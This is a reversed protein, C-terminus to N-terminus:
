GLGDLDVSRVRHVGDLASLHEIVAPAPTVDLALVMVARDGRLNRSVSMNAINVGDEGFATGVRGIIGPRDDNLMVVMHGALEIELQYGEVDVLWPRNERGITTGAVTQGPGTSVRILSTYDGPAHSRGETVAIGRSEAVTRANVLNVPEDSRTAFAGMTVASTLLRTDHEALAGDYTVEIGELRGEHLGVALRGLQTAVPLYPGLLDLDEPRVQPINVANTVLGGRLAAAVQEAVIVGARDQAEQTSAGLHPTVVVNPLELIPGSTYPESPFVDLAAGAVHGSRLADVLADIDILDGRAANVMRAGPKMLALREADILHRTEPTLPAHLTVFDAQLLLNELSASTVGLERCREASVFPDFVCVRMGFAKARAAVLQGIRGFGVIGLVKDALEVGGFRKREWRGQVLAAHAQPINRAIALLLGMAHEAAAVMNSGPANAVIIGRRTAAAVDVNDVGTGARGIVKLRGAHELLDASVTTASRVILADYGGIREALEDPAPNLEVDVQFEGRLLEVGAPAIEETVLVSTM